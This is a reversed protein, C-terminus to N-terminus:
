SSRKEFLYLKILMYIFPTLLVTFSIYGKVESLYPLRWSALYYGLLTVLASIIFSISLLKIERHSIM